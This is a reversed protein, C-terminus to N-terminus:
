ALRFYTRIADILSQPKLTTRGFTTRLSAVINPWDANDSPFRSLFARLDDAVASPLEPGAEGPLTGAIRFVDNRHKMIEKEDVRETTSRNVLDICARAKLPILAAADIFPVGDKEVRHSTILGYYDDNLLIASLSAAFGDGKIPVVHQGAQVDVQGPNRSFIEIMVPYGDVKPKLFRYLERDGDAKERTEYDGADIFEWLRDVFSQDVAEIILVIDIDKTARFELGQIALWQHCAVGGIIVYAKAYATFHTQFKDLGKIM